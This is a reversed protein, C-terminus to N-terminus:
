YRCPNRSLYTRVRNSLGMSKPSEGVRLLRQLEFGRDKLEVEKRTFGHKEEIDKYASNRAALWECGLLFLGLPRGVGSDM